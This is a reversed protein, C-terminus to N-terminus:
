LRRHLLVQDGCRTVRLSDDCYTVHPARRAGRPGRAAEMLAEVPVSIGDLLAGFASDAVRTSQVDLALRTPSLPTARASTVVVGTLGPFVAMDVQSILSGGAGLTLSHTAAGIDAGSIADTFAFIAEAVAADRVLGDKFAAFFPSRAHTPGPMALARTNPTNAMHTPTMRAIQRATSCAVRTPRLSVGAFACVWVWGGVWVCVCRARFVQKNTYLLQWRGEAPAPSGLLPTPCGAGSGQLTALLGAIRAHQAPTALTGRDLGAVEELLALKTAAVASAPLQQQPQQQPQQQQQYTSAAPAAHYQPAASASAPATSTSAGNASAARPSVPTLVGAADEAAAAAV